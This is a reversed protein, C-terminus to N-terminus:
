KLVSKGLVPRGSADWPASGLPAMNTLRKLRGSSAKGLPAIHHPARVSYERRTPTKAGAGAGAGAGSSKGEEDGSGSKGEAAEESKSASAAATERRAAAERKLAAAAAAPQTSVAAAPAPAESEKGGAATSDEAEKGGAGGEAEKGGSGSDSSAKSEGGGRKAKTKTKVKKLGATISGDTPVAKGAAALAGATGWGVGIAGRRRGEWVSLRRPVLGTDAEPMSYSKIQLGRCRATVDPFAVDLLPQDDDADALVAYLSNNFLVSHLVIGRSYTKAAILEVQEFENGAYCALEFFAAGWDEEIWATIGLEAMKSLYSESAVIESEFFAMARKTAVLIPAYKSTTPVASTECTFALNSQQRQLAPLVEPVDGLRLEQVGLDVQGSYCWGGFRFFVNRITSGAKLNRPRMVIYTQTYGEGTLDLTSTALAAAAAASQAEQREIEEKTMKQSEWLSLKAFWAHDYATVQFGRSKGHVPVFISDVLPQEASADALTVLFRNKFLVVTMMVAQMYQKSIIIEADHCKYASHMEFEFYLNGSEADVWSNDELAAELQSTSGMLEEQIFDMALKLKELQVGEDTEGLSDYESLYTMKSQVAQLEKLLRPLQSTSDVESLVLDDVYCYNGYRYLVHRRGASLPGVCYTQNM